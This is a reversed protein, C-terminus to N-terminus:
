IQLLRTDGKNTGSGATRDSSPKEYVLDAAKKIKSLINNLEKEHTSISVNTGKINPVVSVVTKMKEGSNNEFSKSFIKAKEGERDENIVAIPDTLVQYMPGLLHRRQNNGLKEFQHGGLKVEGIPTSVKGDPFLKDYNERTYEVVDMPGALNAFKERLRNKLRELKGQGKERGL